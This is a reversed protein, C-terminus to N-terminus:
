LNSLMFKGIHRCSSILGRKNNLSALKPKCLIYFKEMTCLNCMHKDNYTTAAKTIIRWDINYEMNNDKLSWVHKSLETASRKSVHRFSATHNAHRTKFSTSTLGIYTETSNASRVTAQYIINNEMCEGNMPCQTGNRCNCKKTTTSQSLTTEKNLIKSNQSNIISTVNPMCSYSLKITNRNFIKKLPSKNNFERDLIRFFKKGLNTDLNSSYPPNFWTINRHRATNRQRTTKPQFVLPHTHHSENLATQYAPAADDFAQQDSSINSLRLNISLPINRLIQPPHNSQRHVYLPQNNPKMYPQYRNNNLDITVDLFNVVKLNAEVTIKLKNAKFIDCLKKKTNEIERPTGRVLGLGDDRYLGYDGKINNKIQSLIYIGIIECTEAGDHSGMTVDFSSNGKKYWPRNNHILIASKAQLIVEREDLSITIFQAAYDLAAVLLEQTISPYFEVVDFLIFSHNRKDKINDFWQLVSNTNQWLNTNTKEKVQCIIKELLQKSIKGIEQKTPNILRCSPNNAFNNKHDKLTIYAPKEILKAVRDEINLKGTIEKDRLNIEKTPSNNTKRYDKNIQKKLLDDYHKPELKYFNTTKDAKVLLKNSARIDAIDKTLKRQFRNYSPRFKLEEILEGLSTEFEEMEPIIPPTLRSRFGFTQKTDNKAEPNLHFFARWRMRKILQEVAKILKLTYTRRSPIPINKTSYDFKKQEM